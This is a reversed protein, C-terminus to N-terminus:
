ESLVPVPYQAFVRDVSLLTLQEALAQAIIFRDFPDKHHFPLQSITLVHALEVPLLELLNDQQHEAMIEALPRAIELKGLQAKIQMEWVSAISLVLTNAPDECLQLLRPPIKEPEGDWWIFIQTDLLFKM